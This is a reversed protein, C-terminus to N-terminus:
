LPEFVAYGYVRMFDACATEVARIRSPEMMHKWKEAVEKSNKIVQYNSKINSGTTSKDIFATLQTSVPRNIFKYLELVMKHPHAVLDEYKIRMYKDKIWSEKSIADNAVGATCIKEAADQIESETFNLTPYRSGNGTYLEHFTVLRSRIVARPDRVLHIVLFNSCELNPLEKIISLDFLRICKAMTITFNSCFNQMHLAGKQVNGALDYQAVSSMSNHGYIAKGFASLRNEFKCKCLSTLVQLKAPDSLSSAVDLGDDKRGVDVYRPDLPEFVYMLDDLQQFLTGLWTSGSRAETLLIVLKHETKWTSPTSPADAIFRYENIAPIRQSYIFLLFCVVVVVGCISVPRTIM